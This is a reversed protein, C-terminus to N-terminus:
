VAASICVFSSRESSGARAGFRAIHLRTKRKRWLRQIRQAAASQSSVYARTATLRQRAVVTKAVSQVIVRAQRQLRILRLRELQAEADEMLTQWECMVVASEAACEELGAEEVWRVRGVVM